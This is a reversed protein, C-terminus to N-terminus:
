TGKHGTMTAEIPRYFWRKKEFGIIDMYRLVLDQLACIEQTNKYQRPGKSLIEKTLGLNSHGGEVLRQGIEIIQALHHSSTSVGACKAARTIHRKLAEDSGVQSPKRTKFVLGKSGDNVILGYFFGTNSTDVIMKNLPVTETILEIIAPSCQQGNRDCLYTILGTQPNIYMFILNKGAYFQSPAIQRGLDNLEEIIYFLIHDRYDMEEDWIFELILSDLIKSLEERPIGSERLSQAMWRVMRMRNRRRELDNKDNGSKEKLWALIEQPVDADITVM